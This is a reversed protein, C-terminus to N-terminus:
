AVRPLTSESTGVVEPTLKKRSGVMKLMRDRVNSLPRVITPHQPQDPFKLVHKWLRIDMNQFLDMDDYSRLVALKNERLLLLVSEANIDPNLQDDEVIPDAITSKDYSTLGLEPFYDKIIHNECTQAMTAKFWEMNAKFKQKYEEKKEEQNEPPTSDSSSAEAPAEAPTETAATTRTSSLEKATDFVAMLEKFQRDVSSLMNMGHPILHALDTAIEALEEMSHNLEILRVTLLLQVTLKKFTLCTMASGLIKIGVVLEDGSYREPKMLKHLEVLPDVYVDPQIVDNASPPIDDKNLKVKQSLLEHWKGDEFVLRKILGHFQEATPYGACLGTLAVLKFWVDLFFRM